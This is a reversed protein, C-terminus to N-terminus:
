VRPGLVAREDAIVSLRPTIIAAIVFLFGAM